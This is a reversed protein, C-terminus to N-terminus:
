FLRPHELIRIQAFIEEETLYTGSLDKPLDYDLENVTENVWWRHMFYIIVADRIHKPDHEDYSWDGDDYLDMTIGEPSDDYISLSHILKREGSSNDIVLLKYGLVEQDDENEIGMIDEYNVITDGLSELEPGHGHVGDEPNGPISEFAYYVVAQLTLDPRPAYLPYEDIRIISGKEFEDDIIDDPSFLEVPTRALSRVAQIFQHAPDELLAELEAQKEQLRRETQITVDRDWLRLERQLAIDPPLSQASM